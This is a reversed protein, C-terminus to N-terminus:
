KEVEKLKYITEKDLFGRSTVLNSPLEDKLIAIVDKLPMFTTNIYFYKINPMKILDLGNFIIGGYLVTGYKNEIAKFNIKSVKEILTNPNHLPVEFENSFNTLLLRRSYMAQNHGFVQLVVEKKSNEAIYKIEEKTLENSVFISDVRELFFNISGINTNFHNSFYILEVKLNLNKVIKYVAIDEFVIGKISKISSLVKYLLDVAQCDLIRNILVFKNDEKIKEVEELSFDKEYGVCFDLLPFLFTTVGVKKYDEIETIKRINILYKNKM